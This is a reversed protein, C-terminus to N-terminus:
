RLALALSLIIVVAILGVICPWDPELHRTHAPAVHRPRPQVEVGGVLPHTARTKSPELAGASGLLLLALLMIAFIALIVLGYITLASILLDLM